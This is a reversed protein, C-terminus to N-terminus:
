SKDGALSTKYLRCEHTNDLLSQTIEHITKGHHLSPRPYVWHPAVDNVPLLVFARELIGLHPIRIHESDMVMQDYALIDIDIERPGWHGIRNRGIEAEISHIHVLIEDPTLSTQGCIAMNLFAINWEEPADHPLMAPSSYISSQKINQIHPTLLNIAQDLNSERDGLNSGLGIIVFHTM